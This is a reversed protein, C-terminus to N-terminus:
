LLMGNKPRGLMDIDLKPSVCIPEPFNVKEHFSGVSTPTVTGSEAIKNVTRYLKTPAGPATVGTVKALVGVGSSNVSLVKV